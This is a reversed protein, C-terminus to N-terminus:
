SAFFEIIRIAKTGAFVTRFWWQEECSQDRTFYLYGTKYIYIGGYPFDKRKYITFITDEVNQLWLGTRRPNAPVLEKIVNTASLRWQKPGAM